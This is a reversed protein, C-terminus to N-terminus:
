QCSDDTCNCTPPNLHQIKGHSANDLLLTEICYDALIIYIFWEDFFFFFIFLLNTKYVMRMNEIAFNVQNFLCSIVLDSLSLWVQPPSLLLVWVM